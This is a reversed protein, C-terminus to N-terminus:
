STKAGADGAALQRLRKAREGHGDFTPDDDSLLALARRAQERADATRGLAAYNEALEEHFWGDPKGDGEAWAVAEELLPTAEGPRALARLTKGVAYRAVEIAQPNEPDRERERLAREFAELAQEYDGADYYHWGLNNLLPGLWYRVSRDAAEALEIGRQTWTLMGEDGSDAIAAMHAADVAIFLEGADEASAFAAEFLPLASKPDGGSRRLRGRELDIRARARMSSGALTEAEEILAEGQELEGRLGNVRALQTLVEARRGDDTQHDLLDRLRRETADLDDFDWLPRLTDRV